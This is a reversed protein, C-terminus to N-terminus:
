MFYSSFELSSLKTEKEWVVYNEGFSFWEQECFSTFDNSLNIGSFNKQFLKIKKYVTLGLFLAKLSCKNM